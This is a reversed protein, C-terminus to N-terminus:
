RRENAKNCTPVTSLVERAQQCLAPWRRAGIFGHGIRGPPTRDLWRFARHAPQSRRNGRSNGEAAPARGECKGTQVGAAGGPVRGRRLAGCRRLRAHGQEAERCLGLSKGFEYLKKSIDAATKALGWVTAPDTTM